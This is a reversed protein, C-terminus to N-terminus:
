VRSKFEELLERTIKNREEALIEIIKFNKRDFSVTEILAHSDFVAYYIEQIVSEIIQLLKETKEFSVENKSHKEKDSDTHSYLKDRLILIKSITERNENIQQEWEIIRSESIGMTGFYGERKLKSIFHFINFRDSKVSDKFLKSLEIVTMRWMIHRIFHFDNSCQLYELEQKTDPKHLYFSYSHCEKALLLIQWIQWIEKKIEEKKSM